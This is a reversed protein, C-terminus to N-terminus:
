LLRFFSLSRGTDGSFFSAGGGLFMVRAGPAAHIRKLIVRIYSKDICVNFWWLESINHQCQKNKMNLGLCRFSPWAWAWVKYASIQQHMIILLPNKKDQVLLKRLKGTLIPARSNLRLSLNSVTAGTNVWDCHSWGTLEGSSARQGKISRCSSVRRGDNGVARGSRIDEAACCTPRQCKWVRLRVYKRNTMKVM